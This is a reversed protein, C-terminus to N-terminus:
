QRTRSADLYTGRREVNGVPERSANGKDNEPRVTAFTRAPRRRVGSRGGESNRLSPSVAGKPVVGATTGVSRQWETAVRLAQNSRSRMAKM